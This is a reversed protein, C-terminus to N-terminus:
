KNVKVKSPRLVKGNLYYGNEFVETIKGGPVSPDQEVMICEHLTPNFMADEAPITEVGERKLLASINDLILRLGHTLQSDNYNNLSRKLDDYIQILEKLIRHMGFKLYDVKQRETFKKYNEFEAQLRLFKEYFIESKEAKNKLMNYEKKTILLTDEDSSEDVVELEINSNM